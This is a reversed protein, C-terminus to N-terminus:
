KTATKLYEILDARDKADGIGSYPMRNGKIEQQPDALFLDLTRASWPLASRKMAPSFRFEALEGAKREFVGHLTPGVGNAGKELSHCAACEEFVKKGRAADGDAQAGFALLTGSVLASRLVVCRLVERMM